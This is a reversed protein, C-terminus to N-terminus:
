ARERDVATSRWHHALRVLGFERTAGRVTLKREATDFIRLGEPDMSHVRITYSGPLIPVREFRLESAYQGQRALVLEHRDM